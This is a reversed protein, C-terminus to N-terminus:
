KRKGNKVERPKIEVFFEDDLQRHLRRNLNNIYFDTIVGISSFIITLLLLLNLVTENFIFYGFLGYMILNFAVCFILYKIGILLLSFANSTRPVDEDIKKNRLLYEIRDLQNLQLIDQEM